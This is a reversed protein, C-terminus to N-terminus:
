MCKYKEYYMLKAMIYYLIIRYLIICYLIIFKNYFLFKHM